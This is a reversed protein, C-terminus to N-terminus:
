TARPAFGRRRREEDFDLRSAGPDVRVGESRTVMVLTQLLIRLDLGLSVQDVYELDFAIRRDWSVDNRGEVQALGTMGPRVDYRRREEPTFWPDYRVLLPRPGVLSMDGRLVNILGPLEDLSTKRLLRGLATLREGDSLLTGEPGRDDTMTRFKILEFRRGRWGVRSQRFFVPRGMRLWIACAIAGMVPALVALGATAGVVDLARKLTGYRVLM